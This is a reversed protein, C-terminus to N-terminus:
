EGMTERVAQALNNISDAVSQLGERVMHGHLHLTGMDDETKRGICWLARAVNDITDVINAAEFNSDSVNPSNFSDHIIQAVVTLAEVQDKPLRKGTRTTAGGHPTSNRIKPPNAKVADSREHYM